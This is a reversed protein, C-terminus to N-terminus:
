EAIVWDVPNDLGVSARLIARADAATIQSKGSEIVDSAVRQWESLNELSVSARLACRADAATIFGDADNDGPVVITRKDALTGNQYNLIISIGSKMIGSRDVPNSNKDVIVVAAGLNKTLESLKTGPLSIIFDEGLACINDTKKVRILPAVGMSVFTLEYETAYEKASSNSYGHIVTDDETALWVDEFDLNPNKIVIKKLNSCGSFAYDGISKVSEPITIETLSSCYPFSSGITQLGEPLVIRVLEGCGDFASDEIKELGSPLIINKLDKCYFANDAIVKVTSPVTYSTVEKTDPFEILITKNKDFLAGTSDSSYFRNASDVEFRRIDPFAFANFGIKEVSAPIKIYMVASSGGFSREGIYKLSDPLKITPYIVRCGEVANDAIIVTGDKIGSGDFSSPLKILAKGIYLSGNEWNLSNDYYGTGNFAGEGISIVSDPLVINNIKNCNSYAARGIHTVNDTIPIKTLSYCSSFAGKGIKTVSAPLDFDKLKICSSFMEDSIVTLTKPLRVTELYTCNKFCMAGISTVSDPVTFSKFDCNAFASEGITTLKSPLEFNEIGRCGDFTAIGISKLNQPLNIETLQSCDHFIYDGLLTLGSPLIVKRLMYCLEFANNYIDTVSEPIVIEKLSSCLYFAKEGIKKLNASLKVSEINRCHSFAQEGIYEVTDPLIVEILGTQATFAKKGIGAVVAGGLEAPIEVSDISASKNMGTIEAKSDTVTYEFLEEAAYVSPLLEFVGVSFLSFIMWLSVFFSLIKKNFCNM